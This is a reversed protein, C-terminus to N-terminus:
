SAPKGAAAPHRRHLRRAKRAVAAWLAPDAALAARWPRGTYGAIFRLRDRATLGADMASFYLGSLDKIRWRRPVRRRIQARHLDLLYLRGDDAERLIHCLYYDRHNLGSAHMRRTLDAVAAILRRKDAPAPPHAQWGAALDELSMVGTLEELVVFSQRRAPDLGREGRGVVRAAALGAKALHDIARWESRAGLVPPRLGALNKAIERWGVGFHQKIFFGRGAREFRVTRRGELARFVEGDIAMLAEFTREEPALLAAFDPELRIM